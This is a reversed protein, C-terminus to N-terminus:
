AAPVPPVLVTIAAPEIAITVPSGSSTGVLEDDVHWRESQHIEIRHGTAVPLVLRCDRGALRADLYAALGERHEDGATVVTLLGDTPSAPGLELNPGVARINLVEVLLYDGSLPTGDITMSWRAPELRELTDAYRRLARVLQWPAPEDGPVPRQKISTMCAEVLGGGAGEVFRRMGWEGQIFGLDLPRRVASHWGAALREIPENLGLALAVNNATGVPLVALPITRGAVARAAAAVTGDGGAAVVLEAPADALHEADQKHEIVRVLEHGERQLMARVSGLSVRRGASHNFLLAIKVEDWGYRGPNL